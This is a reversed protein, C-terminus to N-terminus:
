VTQSRIRVLKLAESRRYLMGRMCIDQLEEEESNRTVCTLWGRTAFPATRSSPKLDHLGSGVVLTWWGKEMGGSMMSSM